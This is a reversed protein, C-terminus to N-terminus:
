RDMAFLRESEGVTMECSVGDIMMLPKDTDVANRGHNSSLQQVHQLCRLSAAIELSFSLTAERLRRGAIWVSTILFCLNYVLIVIILGCSASSPASFTFTRYVIWSLISVNDPETVTKSETTTALSSSSVSIDDAAPHFSFPFFTEWFSWHQTIGASEDTQEASSSSCFIHCNSNQQKTQPVPSNRAPKLISIERDPPTAPPSPSSYKIKLSSPLTLPTLGLLNSQLPLASSFLLLLIVNGMIVELCM